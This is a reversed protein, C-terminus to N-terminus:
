IQGGNSPHDRVRQANRPPLESTDLHVGVLIAQKAAIEVEVM